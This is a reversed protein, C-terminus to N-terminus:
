GDQRHNSADTRQSTMRTAILSQHADRLVTETIKLPRKVQDAM